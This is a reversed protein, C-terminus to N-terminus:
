SPSADGGRRQKREQGSCCSLQWLGAAGSTGATAAEDKGWAATAQLSGDGPKASALLGKGLREETVEAHGSGNKERREKDPDCGNEWSRRPISGM